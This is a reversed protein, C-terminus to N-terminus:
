EGGVYRENVRGLDDMESAYGLTTAKRTVVMEPTYVEGTTVDIWLVEVNNATMSYRDDDIIVKYPSEERGITMGNVDFAFHITIANIQEQLDGNVNQLSTIVDQFQLTMQDSLLKLQADVTEKYSEFDGTETYNKTAELIINECDKIISTSQTTITEHLEATADDVAKQASDAANQANVAKNYAVKAAEYSSSISVESYVFTDDCFVTCDVFYLSNTSGETYSPETDGWASTPPYTTPKSPKDLTSSQLLYYRYTAKVDVVSSLTISASAKVAM